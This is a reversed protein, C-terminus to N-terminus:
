PHLKQTHEGSEINSLNTFSWKLLLMVKSSQDITQNSVCVTIWNGVDHNNREIDSLFVDETKRIEKCSSESLCSKFATASIMIVDQLFFMFKPDFSDNIMKFFDKVSLNLIKLWTKLLQNHCIKPVSEM